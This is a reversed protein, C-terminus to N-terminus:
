LLLYLGIEKEKAGFGWFTGYLKDAMNDDGRGMTVM